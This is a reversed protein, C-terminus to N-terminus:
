KRAPKPPGPPGAVGSVRLFRSGYSLKQSATACRGVLRVFAVVLGLAVTSSRGSIAPLHWSSVGRGTPRSPPGRLPPRVRQGSTDASRAGRVMSSGDLPPSSGGLRRGLRRLPDLISEVESTLDIQGWWSLATDASPTHALDAAAFAVPQERFALPSLSRFAIQQGPQVYWRARLTGNTFLGANTDYLGVYAPAAAGVDWLLNFDALGCPGSHVQFSQVSLPQAVGTYVAPLSSSMGFASALWALNVPAPDFFPGPSILQLTLRVRPAYRDRVRLVRGAKVGLEIGAEALLVEVEGGLAYARLIAKTPAELLSLPRQYIDICSRGTLIFLEQETTGRAWASREKWWLGDTSVGQEHALGERM